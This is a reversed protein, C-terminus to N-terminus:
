RPTIEVGRLEVAKDSETITLAFPGRVIANAVIAGVSGDTGRLRAWYGIEATLAGDYTGPLVDEGVM